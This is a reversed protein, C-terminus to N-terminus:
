LIARQVLDVNDTFPIYHDILSCKSDKRSVGLNQKSTPRGLEKQFLENEQRSKTSDM